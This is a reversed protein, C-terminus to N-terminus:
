SKNSLHGHLHAMCGTAAGCSFAHNCTAHKLHKRSLEEIVKSQVVDHVM